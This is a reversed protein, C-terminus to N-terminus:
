DTWKKLDEFSEGWRIEPAPEPEEDFIRSVRKQTEGSVLNACSSPILDHVLYKNSELLVTMTGPSLTISNALIVQSVPKKYGTKFRILGPNIPMRPHLVLYAVLLNDRAIQAVLWPVYTALHYATKLASVLSLRGSRGAPALAVFMERNFWTVGACVVAGAILYFPQYHQSLIVWFVYLPIFQLALSLLFSKRLTHTDLKVQRTKQPKKM